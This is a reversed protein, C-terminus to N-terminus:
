ANLADQCKTVEPRITEMSVGKKGVEERQQLKEELKKPSRKEERRGATLWTKWSRRSARSM